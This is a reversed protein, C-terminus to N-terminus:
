NMLTVDSVPTTPENSIPEKSSYVLQPAEHEEVIISSSSLTDETDLTNTASNNSVKPTRTEYYEKYLPGFLNDLDEKSPIENLEKSSDQFNLCNLGPGSNNCESSMAILEDFKVHITEMIKRTRRNYIQFRRSLHFYQVNPKRGKILEYPTKNYQTNVLSRNHTFCATAIAKANQQPTRAILTQHIVGLEEYHSRLKKNKFKTGNYHGSWFWSKTLTAKHMLCVPSSAAMESISITYLNSDRSGTLLDEGSFLNHGLGAVYYVHCITLNGQVYDGYGIIATFHDNGFRVTGMFKKVFNILLKLNGTMHKSFGNDVIWLIIVLTAEVKSSKAAVPSTFLARKVRYNASLAYRAVCKDHSIMFMDKGCSVCVLNLGDNVLNVTKAKLVNENSESVNLNLTDRKNSVLSVSSQSKKVDKFTSKFKINLLVIKKLMNDKFEPRNVSSSSALSTIPKSKDTKVEVKSVMKAKLDKNKNLPTVCILKGLTAYKDFNTNVNKGKEATKLKDKLESIAMLLNQNKARVDGYAYTKQNVNEILENGEWKHQVRKM